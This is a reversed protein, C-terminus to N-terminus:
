YLRNNRDAKIGTEILSDRLEKSMRIVGKAAEQRFTTTVGPIDGASRGEDKGCRWHTLFALRTEDDSLLSDKLEAIRERLADLSGAGWHYTEIYVEHGDSIVYDFNPIGAAYMYILHQVSGEYKGLDYKFVRKIDFIANRRIVDAIGYLLDGDLERSIRQQWLGGKVIDAAELVRSDESAGGDCVRRVASEFDIGALMAPSEERETKNLADLIEEKGSEESDM